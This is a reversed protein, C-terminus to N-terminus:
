VYEFISVNVLLLTFSCTLFSLASSWWLAMRESSLFLTNFFHFCKWMKKRWSYGCSFCWKTKNRIRLCPRLFETISTFKLFIRKGCRKKNRDGMNEFLLLLLHRSVYSGLLLVLLISSFMFWFFCKWLMRMYWSAIMGPCFHNQWQWFRRYFFRFSIVSAMSRLNWSTVMYLFLLKWNLWM